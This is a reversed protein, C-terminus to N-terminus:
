FNVQLTLRLDMNRVSRVINQTASLYKFALIIMGYTNIIWKM